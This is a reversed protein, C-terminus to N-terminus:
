SRKPDEATLKAVLRKGIFGPFGTVLATAMSRSGLDSRRSCRPRRASARGFRGTWTAPGARRTIPTRSTSRGTPRRAVHGISTLVGPPNYSGYAGGSYREAAWVLELYQRPTRAKPGFYSALDDLVEARRKRRRAAFNDSGDLGEMFGVIVGPKGGPPSNDYAVKIPPTDSVVAGSLGADRWFPRDYVVNVKITAGMPQRQPNARPGPSTPASAIARSWRRRCASWSARPLASEGKAGAM